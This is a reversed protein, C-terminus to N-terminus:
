SRTGATAGRIITIVTSETITQTGGKNDPLGVLTRNVTCRVMTASVGVCDGPMKFMFNDRAADSLSNKETKYHWLTFGNAYALVSLDRIAFAM